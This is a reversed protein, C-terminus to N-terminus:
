DGPKPMHEALLEQTIYGQPYNWEAPDISKDVIFILKFRKPFADAM